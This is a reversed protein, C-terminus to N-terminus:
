VALVDWRVIKAISHVDSKAAQHERFRNAKGLVVARGHFYKSGGMTFRNADITKAAAVVVDGNPLRAIRYPKSGLLERLDGSDAKIDEVFLERKAPEITIVRM